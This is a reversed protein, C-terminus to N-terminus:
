SQWRAHTGVPPDHGVDPALKELLEPTLQAALILHKLRGESQFDECKPRMARSIQSQYQEFEQM